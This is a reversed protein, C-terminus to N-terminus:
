IDEEEEGLINTAKKTAKFAMFYIIKDKKATVM